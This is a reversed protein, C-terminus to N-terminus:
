EKIDFLHPETLQVHGKMLKYMEYLRLLRNKYAQTKRQSTSVASRLQHIEEELQIRQQQENLLLQEYSSHITTQQSRHSSRESQLNDEQRKIDSQLQHIIEENTQVKNELINIKLQLERNIQEVETRQKNAESISATSRSLQVQLATITTRLDHITYRLIQIEGNMSAIETQAVDFSFQYSTDMNMPEKSPSNKQSHVVSGKDDRVISQGLSNNNHQLLLNNKSAFSTTSVASSSLALSSSSNTNTDVNVTSGTPLNNMVSVPTTNRREYQSIMKAVSNSKESTTTIPVPNITTNMSTNSNEPPKNEKTIVIDESTEGTIALSGSRSREQISNRRSSGNGLRSSPRVLIHSRLTNLENTLEQIKQENLLQLEQLSQVQKESQMAREDSQKRAETIAQQILEEHYFILTQKEKEWTSQETSYKNSINNIENDLTRQKINLENRVQQLETSLGVVDVM